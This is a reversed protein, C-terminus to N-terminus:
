GYMTLSVTGADFTDTGNTTTIRVRDLVNTLPKSMGIAFLGAANSLGLSASAAWTNTAMDARSLTVIGHMTTATAFVGTFLQFSTTPNTGSAVSSSWVTGLYGTASIGGTDGIQIVPSAAGAANTSLGAINIDIRKVWSPINTFDVSTGSLTIAQTVLPNGIHFLSNGGAGQKLTPSATWAFLAAPTIDIYGVVRFAVNSKATTSYIVNGSDAAGVGGEATTSILASENLNNQGNANCVALEVTGANNLALVAIRGNQSATFGLSSGNSLVMSIASNLSIVTVTGDTLTSSRFALATPNLTFTIASSAVTADLPQIDNEVLSNTGSVNQATITVTSSASVNTDVEFALKKTSNISGSVRFNSDKLIPSSTNDATLLGLSVSSLGADLVGSDLVVTVTTLAAYATISIVGYVTGATVLLKVRRGVHFDSTKDGSVSFSTASIYTPTFGSAVWQDITVTTDNIGSINDITRIPSAPPDTDTSPAFVFKYTLGETLWIPSAPEGRSNLIIPNAQLITGASDAYTALKTSTGAIYTFIKGGSAPLGGITQADNFFPSLNVSM